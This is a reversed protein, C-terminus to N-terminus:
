PKAETGANATPKAIPLDIRAVDQEKPFWGPQAYLNDQPKFTEGTLDVHLVDPLPQAAPLQWVVKIAEPMSPQLEWLIGRDRVLYFQPEPVAEVNTLKLTKRFINSSEGSLNELTLDVVLAQKGAAIRVGDPMETAIGASHLTVNWRGTVVPTDVPIRNIEGSTRADYLSLGLSVAAALFGGLGAILRAYFSKSTKAPDAPPTGAPTSPKM